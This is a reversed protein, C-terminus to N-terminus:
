RCYDELANLSRDLRLIHTSRQRLLAVASHYQKAMMFIRYTKIATSHAVTGQAAEAV